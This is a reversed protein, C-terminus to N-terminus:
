YVWNSIMKHNGKEKHSVNSNEFYKKISELYPRILDVKYNGHILSFDNNIEAKITEKNIIYENNYKDKTKNICM